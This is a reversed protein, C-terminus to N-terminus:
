EGLDEPITKDVRTRPQSRLGKHTTTKLGGMESSHVCHEKMNSYGVMDERLVRYGYAKVMHGPCKGWLGATQRGQVYCATSVRNPWAQARLTTGGRESRLRMGLRVRNALIQSFVTRFRTSFSSQFSTIFVMSFVMTRGGSVSWVTLSMDWSM